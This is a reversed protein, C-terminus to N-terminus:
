YYMTTYKIICVHALDNSALTIYICGRPLAPARGPHEGRSLCSTCALEFAAIRCSPVEPFPLPSAQPLSPCAPFPLLRSANALAIVIFIHTNIYYILIEFKHNFHYIITTYKIFYTRPRVTCFAGEHFPVAHQFPAIRCSPGRAFRLPSGQPLSPFPMSSVSPSWYSESPIVILM